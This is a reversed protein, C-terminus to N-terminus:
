SLLISSPLVKYAMRIENSFCNHPALYTISTVHAEPWKNLSDRCAMMEEMTGRGHHSEDKEGKQRQMKEREKYKTNAATTRASDSRQVSM